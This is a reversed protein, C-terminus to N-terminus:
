SSPSAFVASASSMIADFSEIFKECTMEETTEGAFKDWLERLKQRVEAGPQAARFPLIKATLNRHPYTNGVGANHNAQQFQEEISVRENDAQGWEVTHVGVKLDVQLTAEDWEESEWGLEKLKALFAADM